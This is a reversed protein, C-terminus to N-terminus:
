PSLRIGVDILAEAQRTCIEAVTEDPTQESTDLWLGLHHPTTGLEADNRVATFGGRYAVKGTVVLHQAGFRVTRLWQVVDQGYINDQVVCTFGAATYEDAVM